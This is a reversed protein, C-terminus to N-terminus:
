VAAALLKLVDVKIEWIDEISHWLPMRKKNLFLVGARPREKAM